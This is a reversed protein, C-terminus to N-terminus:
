IQLKRESAEPPFAHALVISYVKMFYHHNQSTPAVLIWNFHFNAVYFMQVKTQIYLIFHFYSHTFCCYRALAHNHTHPAFNHRAEDSGTCFVGQLLTSHAIDGSNLHCFGRQQRKKMEEREQVM